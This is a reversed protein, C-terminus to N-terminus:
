EKCAVSMIHRLHTCSMLMLIYISLRNVLRGRIKSFKLHGYRPLPDDSGSRTQNCYQKKWLLIKSVPLDFVVVEPTILDLITALQWKKM